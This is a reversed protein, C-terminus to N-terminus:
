RQNSTEEAIRKNQAEHSHSTSMILQQGVTTSENSPSLCQVTQSSNCTMASLTSSDSDYADVNKV